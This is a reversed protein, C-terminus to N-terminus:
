DHGGKLYRLVAKSANYGPAGMVGGGPHTGAGCLYLGEIPLAYANIEPLPRFVYMQDPTMELHFINGEAMGFRREMDLPTLLKHKVPKFNSAYEQIKAIVLEEVEDRIADLNQNYPLYQGFVSFSYYGPPALSTDVSSQVNLSLWPNRSHGYTLAESYSREVYDVSPLILQSAKLEDTGVDIGDFKPLEALYGVLKFSTGKSKLAAVKRRLHNEIKEESILRLLTTKPDANSVVCKAEIVKSDALRIGMAKGNKIVIEKVEQGAFMHVGLSVAHEELAQTVGGMGGVVYGWAGKIGNAESMLHHALIYATGPSSPPLNTGVVADEVLASKVEEAEFYEDLMSRADRTFVQAFDLSMNLSGIESLLAGAEEPNPPTSLLFPEITESFTSWFRIWKEYERADKHSFKQIEYETKRIDNWITIHKSGGFPVFLGPEKTIVKLGHRRLELEDAIKTRFLGFVYAGTSVKIGPWLEETVCAGGMFPRREFVAVKLGEKALYSACVLGNHGGGVVVVDYMLTVHRPHIYRKAPHV